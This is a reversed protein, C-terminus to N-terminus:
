GVSSKRQAGQAETTQGKLFRQRGVNWGDSVGRM